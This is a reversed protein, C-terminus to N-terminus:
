LLPSLLRSVQEKFRILINRSRYKDKTILTSQQVDKKFIEVLEKAKDEDYVLANVEFDLEFSRIDMNATGYCFVADDVIIGKAHLFGNDYTYCNAGELILEGVYSYTAWYVFPHDPKCPIMINVEVGSRVAIQLATMLSEDPIFYPTQIYISKKAKHIMRVYTNRIYEDHSDPGSTIIQIPVAGEHHSFINDMYNEYSLHRKRDAFNWDLIFRAELATVASGTIRMHTDRWHGFKPDKDIYERGINFGGVYGIKGDIVVIKRHNRYNIRLHLKGVLAPFFETCKIGKKELKRWLRRHTTWCGMSDFLICVEVGEKVKEELIEVISHFLEDDRIIYYQIHISKKANRMDEKLAAFKDEGNVFFEIENDDTLIASETHLHYMVLDSFDPVDSYKERLERSQIMMEQHRITNALRDEIEKTRFMKRKHMDAGLVLYFVFGVVPVFYLILLWAWVSKPNRRQFFVVVISLIVNLILLHSGIFSITNNILQLATDM